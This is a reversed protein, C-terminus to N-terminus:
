FKNLIDAIRKALIHKTPPHINDKECIDACRALYTYPIEDCVKEQMKQIRTWEESAREIFDAIQIIVFPLAEDNLDTRWSTILKSLLLDYIKSENESANSEGQYWLVAAFSFPVVQSFAFNYLTSNGNWKSYDPHHHDWHLGDSPLNKEIEKLSLPSLWSQIVSAGQYLAVLGIPRQSKQHLERALFYGIASFNPATTANCKVWGDCPKFHENDELRETSFLRIDLCEYIDGDPIAEFLKFQMNSQGSLLYVDGFTVNKIEIRQEESQVTINLIECYNHAPLEVLWKGNKAITSATNTGITVSIEGEGEGYIRIPKNAQIIMEDTFISNLKIM